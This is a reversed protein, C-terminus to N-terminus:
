VFGQYRVRHNLSRCDLFSWGNGTTINAKEKVLEAFREAGQGMPSTSPSIHGLKLTIVEEADGQQGAPWTLCVGVLMLLFFIGLTKWKM